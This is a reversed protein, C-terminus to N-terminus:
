PVLALCSLLIIILFVPNILGVARVNATTSSTAHYQLRSILDDDGNAEQVTNQIVTEVLLRLARFNHTCNNGTLMHDVGRFVCPLIDVLCNGAMLSRVCGICKMSSVCEVLAYYWITSYIPNLGPYHQCCCYIAAPSHQDGKSEM